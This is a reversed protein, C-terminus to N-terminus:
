GALSSNSIPRRCLAKNKETKNVRLIGGNVLVKCCVVKVFFCFLSSIEYADNGSLM